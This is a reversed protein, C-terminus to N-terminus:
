VADRLVEIGLSSNKEISNIINDILAFIEKSLKEAQLYHNNAQQKNNVKVEDTIMTGMNHLRHHVDDIAQWDKVIDPHTVNISHYFHGFACRKSNTQIPYSKMQDVMLKLNKMWNGHADKAKLLNEILEKNTISNKGGNLALLMDRISDSLDEDIKSIQKAREVNESADSHITKTMENLKESDQASIDMAQNIQNTAEKIDEVAGTIITVDQITTKLMSVNEKITNSISDLKSNMDNTSKMTNNMSEQGDNAAQHINNVFIRMDNLSTKTNDALKRIEDAVVSFGRGFEGARAAEISANLALLNTQEAIAEVGNVIETVKVAMEVLQKIQESMISADKTVNEKLVNVESLQAISEDNKDVLLRSAEYLQNMTNSTNSITDNVEAMNATIEEVVALNSESISSMNKAFQNLEYASHTMQVDFNSLASVINIMKKSNVAMKEESTLLKDFTKYVEKHIPYDVNIPEVKNGNLRDEVHKLICIAEDCPAKKFLGMNIDEM